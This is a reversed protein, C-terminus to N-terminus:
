STLVPLLTSLAGIALVFFGISIVSTAATRSLGWKEFKDALPDVFYAVAMRAVFPTLVDRLVYMLVIFVILGIIWFKFNRSPEM